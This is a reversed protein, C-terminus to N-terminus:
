TLKSTNYSSVTGLSWNRSPWCFTVNLQGQTM